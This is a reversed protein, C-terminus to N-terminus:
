TFALADLAIVYRGTGTDDSAEVESQCVSRLEKVHLTLARRRIQRNSTIQSGGDSGSVDSSVWIQFPIRHAAPTRLKREGVYSVKLLQLWSDAQRDSQRSLWLALPISGACAMCISRKLADCAGRGLTCSTRLRTLCNTQVILTVPSEKSAIFVLVCPPM